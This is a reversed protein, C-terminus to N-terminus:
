FKNKSGSVYSEACAKCAALSSPTLTVPMEKWTPLAAVFGAAKSSAIAIASAHKAVAWSIPNLILRSSIPPPKLEFQKLKSPPLLMGAATLLARSLCKGGLRPTWIIESGPLYREAGYVRTSGVEGFSMILNSQLLCYPLIAKRQASHLIKHRCIGKLSSSKSTHRDKM